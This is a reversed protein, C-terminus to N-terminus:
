NQSSCVLSANLAMNSFDAPLTRRKASQELPKKGYHEELKEYICDCQSFSVGGQTCGAVFEKEAKSSCGSIAIFFIVPFLYRM